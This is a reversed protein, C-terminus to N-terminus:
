YRNPKLGLCELPVNHSEEFFAFFFALEILLVWQELAALKAAKCSSTYFLDVVFIEVGQTIEDLFVALDNRGAQGAGLSVVLTLEVGSDLTRAEQCQQRVGVVVILGLNITMCTM